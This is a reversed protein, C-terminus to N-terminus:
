LSSAEIHNLVIGTCYAAQYQGIAIDTPPMIMEVRAVGNIHLAAYIGSLPVPEGISRAEKVYAEISRQVETM